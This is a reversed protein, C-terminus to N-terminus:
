CGTSRRWSVVQWCCASSSSPTCRSVGARAVLRSTADADIGPIMGTILDAMSDDSLPSLNLAISNRHGSGFGPRADLLEPRALSVVFIPHRPSREVLETVFDLMGADAWHMDEFVLM